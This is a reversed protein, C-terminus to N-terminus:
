AWNAAMHAICDVVRCAYGWENDHWLCIKALDDSNVFTFEEDVVCSYTSGAYDSSVLPKDSYGLIGRLSTQTAHRLTDRLTQTDTPRQLVVTLDMISVTQTPVRMAFGEIRGTLEPLVTEVARPAGSTVPIINLGAARGRRLDCKAADLLPQERTYPHVNTSVAKAVGFNDCIIKLAPVLCNGTCSSASVVHHKAPDFGEHSVGMVLTWDADPLFKAALVKGAGAGLHATMADKSCMTGTAEVVIDVGLERWPLGGPDKVSLCTVEPCGSARLKDGDVTVEGPFRGYASDRRLLHALNEPDGLDNVAVISFGPHPKQAAVRFIQRGIRGFGNIAIRINKTNM